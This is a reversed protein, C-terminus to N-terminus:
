KEAWTLDTITEGLLTRTYAETLHLHATEDNKLFWDCSVVMLAKSIRQADERARSPLVFARPSDSFALHDANLLWVFYKRGEPLLKFAEWRTHPRM